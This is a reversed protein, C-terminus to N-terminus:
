SINSNFLILQNLNWRNKTQKQGCTKQATTRPTNEQQDELQGRVTSNLVYIIIIIITVITLEM